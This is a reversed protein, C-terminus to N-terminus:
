SRPAPARRQGPTDRHTRAPLRQPHAPQRTSRERDRAQRPSESCTASARRRPISPTMMTVWSAWIALAATARPKETSSGTVSSGRPPATAHPPGPAVNQGLRRANIHPPISRRAPHPPAAQHAVCAHCRRASPGRPRAGELSRPRDGRDRAPVPVTAEDSPGSALSGIARSSLPLSPPAAHPTPVHPHAARRSQRHPRCRASRFPEQEAPLSSHHRAPHHQPTPGRGSDDALQQSEDAVVSPQPSRQIRIGANRGTFLWRSDALPSWRPILLLARPRSHSRGATVM